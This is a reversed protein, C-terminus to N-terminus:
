AVVDELPQDKMDVPLLFSAASALFYSGSFVLLALFFQNDLILWGGIMPAMAGAIRTMASASGMGTARLPTPYVEPTYAYLAGWAGLAFFSMWIGMFVLFSASSAAAFFYTFIGSGLLYLGLTKRRGIKEVLWAASFYGPIQALALIFTRQYVPMLGLGTSSLYNPLWTFVGYYGLSIFFWVTWLLVTAKRYKPRMIDQITTKQVALPALGEFGLKVGNVEAVHKLVDMAEDAKGQSLLYRPSEPVNKRIIFVILGPLASVALLWRWGLTPVILWALGAAVIVGLAWFSELIVLRRGRKETPLYESYISYDVPLTGGVGFGTLSRFIVLLPFNPAFASLLGFGSDIGITAMFGLKRGLKDSIRGWVLAGFLMGLFIATSLFGKQEPSLGWEEGIAPLAFAILLVEMADAAWGLGCIWMLRKQFRGYGVEEIADNFPVTRKEM